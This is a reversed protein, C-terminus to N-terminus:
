RRWAMTAQDLAEVEGDVLSFSLAGANSARSHSLLPSGQGL